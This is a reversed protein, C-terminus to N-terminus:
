EFAGDNDYGNNRSMARNLRPRAPAIGKLVEVIEKRGEGGAPYSIITDALMRNFLSSCKKTAVGEFTYAGSKLERYLAYGYAGRLERSLRSKQFIGLAPDEGGPHMMSDAQKILTGGANNGGQLWEVSRELSPPLSGNKSNMSTRAM